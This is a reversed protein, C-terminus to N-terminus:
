EAQLHKDSCRIEYWCGCGRWSVLKVVNDGEDSWTVRSNQRADDPTRRFVVRNRDDFRVRVEDAGVIREPARVCTKGEGSDVERM